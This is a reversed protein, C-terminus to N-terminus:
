FPDVSYEGQISFCLPLESGIEILTSARCQSLLLARALRLLCHKAMDECFAVHEQVFGEMPSTYEKLNLGRPKFGVMAMTIENLFEFLTLAINGVLSGTSLRKGEDARRAEM